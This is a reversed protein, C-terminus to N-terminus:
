LWHYPTQRGDRRSPAADLPMDDASLALSNIHRMLMEESLLKGPDHSTKMM